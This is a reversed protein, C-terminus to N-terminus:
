VASSNSTILYLFFLLISLFTIDLRTKLQLNCSTTSMQPNKKWISLAMFLTYSVPHGCDVFVTGKLCLVDHKSRGHLDEGHEQQGQVPLAEGQAGQGKVVAVEGVLLQDLEAREDDLELPRREVPALLHRRDPPVPQPGGNALAPSKKIGKYM